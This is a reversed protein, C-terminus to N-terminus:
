VILSPTSNQKNDSIQINRNKITDNLLSTFANLDDMDENKFRVVLIGKSLLKLDRDNDYEVASEHIAGDLEIILRLKACYFDAIYFDTWNKDIRYFVPHQRLFKYGSLNKRRLIDWLIKEATTM